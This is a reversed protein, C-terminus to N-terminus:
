VRKPSSDFESRRIFSANGWQTQMVIENHPWQFDPIVIVADIEVGYNAAVSAFEFYANQLVRVVRNSEDMRRKEIEADLRAQLMRERSRLLELESQESM